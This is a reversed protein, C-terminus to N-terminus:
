SKKEEQAWTVLLIGEKKWRELNDKHKNYIYHEPSETTSLLLFLSPYAQKMRGTILTKIVAKLLELKSDNLNIAVWDCCGCGNRRLYWM